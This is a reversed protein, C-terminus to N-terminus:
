FVSPKPKLSFSGGVNRSSAFRASIKATAPDLTGHCIATFGEDYVEKWALKVMGDPKAWWLGDRIKYSGDVGDNGRGSMRGDRGFQLTVRVAQDGDDEEATAGWYEGSPPPSHDGPPVVHKDMIEDHRRQFTEWTSRGSSGEPAGSPLLVLGFYGLLGLPLAAEEFASPPEKAASITDTTGDDAYRVVLECGGASGLSSALPQAAGPSDGYLASQVPPRSEIVYATRPHWGPSDDPSDVIDVLEGARALNAPCV